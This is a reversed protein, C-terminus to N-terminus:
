KSKEKKVTDSDPTIKINTLGYDHKECKSDDVFATKNRKQSM